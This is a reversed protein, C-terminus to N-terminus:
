RFIKTNKRLSKKLLNIELTKVLIISIEKNLNSITKEVKKSRFSVMIICIQNLLKKSM